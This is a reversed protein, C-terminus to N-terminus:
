IEFSSHLFENCRNAPCKSSGSSNKNPAPKAAIYKMWLSVSVAMVDDKMMRDQFVLVACLSSCSDWGSLTRSLWLKYAWVFFTHQSKRRSLRQPFVENGNVFKVSTVEWGFFTSLSCEITYFVLTNWNVVLSEFLRWSTWGRWFYFARHRCWDGLM